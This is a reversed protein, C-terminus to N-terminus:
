NIIYKLIMNYITDISLTADIDIVKKKYFNRIKDENKHYNYLRNSIAKDSIDLRKEEGKERNLIREESIKDDLNFIFVLDMSKNNKELYRDLLLAQKRTRPYADLVIKDSKIKDLKTFLMRSIISDPVWEGNKWYKLYLEKGIKTGDEYEKRLLEGTSVINFGENECLRKSEAGKGCGSPGIFSIIM